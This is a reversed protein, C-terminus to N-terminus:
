IRSNNARARALTNEEVRSIENQGSRILFLNVLEARPVLSSHAGSLTIFHLQEKNCDQLVACGSRRMGGLQVAVVRRRGVRVVAPGRRVRRGRRGSSRGQLHGVDRTVGRRSTAQGEALGVQGLHAIVTGDIM